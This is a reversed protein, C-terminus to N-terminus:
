CRGRDRSRPEDSGRAWRQLNVVICRRYACVHGLGDKDPFKPACYLQESRVSRAQKKRDALWIHCSIGNLHGKTRLLLLDLQPLEFVPVQKEVLYTCDRARLGVRSLGSLWREADCIAHFSRSFAGADSPPIITIVVRREANTVEARYVTTEVTAKM